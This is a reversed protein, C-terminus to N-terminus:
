CALNGVNGIAVNDDQRHDRLMKGDREPERRVFKLRLALEASTVWHNFKVSKAVSALIPIITKLLISSM